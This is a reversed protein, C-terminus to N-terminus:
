DITIVPRGINLGAEIRRHADAVDHLPYIEDIVPRVGKETVLSWFQDRAAESAGRVGVIRQGLSYLRRLDLSVDGGFKAGSCVIRGAPSLAATSLDWLKAAGINDIVIDAGHGATIERVRGLAYWRTSPTRM